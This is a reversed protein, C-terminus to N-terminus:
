LKSGRLEWLPSLPRSCIKGYLGLFSGDRSVSSKPSRAEQVSVIFEQPKLGETQPVKNPCGWSILVLWSIFSSMRGDDKQKKGLAEYTM